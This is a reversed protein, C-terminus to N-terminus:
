KRDENKIAVRKDGIGRFTLVLIPCSDGGISRYFYYPVIKPWLLTGIIM